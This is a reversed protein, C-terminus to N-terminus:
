PTPVQRSPIWVLQWDTLRVDNKELGVETMDIDDVGGLHENEIQQIQTRLAEEADYADRELDAIDDETRGIKEKAKATSVRKTMATTLSKKRGGFLMGFLTEGVNVAEVAMKGRADLRHRELDAELKDRKKEIRDVVREVKTRLKRVDADIEDRLKAEVRARFAARDEGARSTMKLARHRYMRDTEGRVVEDIAHRALKKRLSPSVEVPIPVFLGEGAGVLDDEHLEPEVCAEDGLPLFVRQETRESDFFQGEDFRCQVTALLAATWVTQDPVRPADAAATWSRLRASHARDPRLFRVPVDVTPAETLLGESASPVAAAPSPAQPAKPIEPSEPVAQELRGVERKTLPGRLWSIAWRTHFLRPHRESVQRELFVRKPLRDIWAAVAARDLAGDGLAMGDLVRDRDQPTSLRGIWWTGANSLAKYDVDVPNQTCLVVGLGIGRGQKLLTLLPRKSPPSKPHPPLWGWVEDFFLVARLSSTGPQGRSWAVMRALLLTVAFERAADDLHALYVVRVPVRGDTSTLLAEPDLPVGESWRAFSPSALVGNLKLALDMRDRRPFFTDVPFVGVKEFPPDILRIVLQELELAEGDAWARQFLQALVIHEPDRAPDAKVGALGLIAQVSSRAAETHAEDDVSEPPRGLGGLVDVPMGASSGPTLVQLDMREHLQRVRGPGIGSRELGSRWTSALHEAHEDITHGAREAEGPDIWPAYAEAVHEPFAFALNALDGKPDIAIIPVGALVLEELLTVCLGTKGSGTMGVCVAHRTLRDPDLRVVADGTDLTEPDIARGLTLDDSLRGGGGM